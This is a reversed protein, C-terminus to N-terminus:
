FRERLISEDVKGSLMWCKRAEILLSALQTKEGPTLPSAGTFSGEATRGREDRGQGRGGMGGPNVAIDARASGGRGSIMSTGTFNMLGPIGWLEIETFGVHPDTEEGKLDYDVPASGQGSG